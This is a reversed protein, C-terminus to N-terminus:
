PKPFIVTYYFFSKTSHWSGMGQYKDTVEAVNKMGFGHNEGDEKHTPIHEGQAKVPNKMPNKVSVILQGEEMLMRFCITRHEGVESCAEIANDLLNSLLIVIDQEELWVAGLNNVQFLISIKQEAAQRYKQNLLVNIVPHSVDIVDIGERLTQDLREALTQAEGVDKDKMLGLICNVQNKYDHLIKRQNEYNRKQEQFSKMQNRNREESALLESLERNRRATLKLYYATLLNLFIMGLVVPLFFLDESGCYFYRLIGIVSLSIVPFFLLLGDGIKELYQGSDSKRWVTQFILLIFMMFLEVLSQLWRELREIFMISNYIIVKEAIGTDQIMEVIFYEGLIFGCYTFTLYLKIFFGGRYLLNGFVMVMCGTLALQMLDYYRYRHSVIHFLVAMLFILIDKILYKQKKNELFIDFFINFCIVEIFAQVVGIFLHGGVMM